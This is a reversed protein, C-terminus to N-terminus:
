SDLAEFYAALAAIEDNSLRGAMMQMVPHPRFKDKYAHMAIVFDEAPWGVIGPIGDNEGSLQHCSTCESSLYAGYEPDGQIALITPDVSHDTGAVTPAAEPIDGPNDSYRRLFALLDARKQEDKLGRYSMRTDSAFAKPNEIYRDLLDFEWILGDKGMRTLGNSYKFGDEAGARRGFIGNLHPGVRNKAGEGIAHCSKCEKWLTEGDEASGIENSFSPTAACIAIVLGIAANRIRGM